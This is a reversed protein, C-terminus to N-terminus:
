EFISVEGATLSLDSNLSYHTVTHTTVKIIGVDCWRSNEKKSDAQQQQQAQKLVQQPQQQQPPAKVDDKGEQM